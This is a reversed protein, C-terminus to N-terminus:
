RRAAATKRGGKGGGGGGGGRGRVTKQIAAAAYGREVSERNEFFLRQERTRWVSQIHSAAYEEEVSLRNQFFDRQRYTHYHKQISSAAEEEALAQTRSAKGRAAAQIVTAADAKQKKQVALPVAAATGDRGSQHGPVLVQRQIAETMVLLMQEQQARLWESHCVCVGGPDAELCM